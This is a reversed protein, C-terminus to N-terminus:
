MSSINIFPVSYRDDQHILDNQVDPKRIIIPKQATSTLEEPTYNLNSFFKEMDVVKGKSDVISYNFNKMKSMVDNLIDKVPRAYHDKM